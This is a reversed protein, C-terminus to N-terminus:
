QENFVTEGSIFVGVDYNLQKNRPISQLYFIEVAMQYCM